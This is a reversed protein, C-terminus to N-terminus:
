KGIAICYIAEEDGPEVDLLTNLRDDYFGGIACSGVHLPSSLLSINQGIHGAEIHMYRYAREGYKQLGRKICATLVIICAANALWSQAFYEEVKLEPMLVLEELLHSRVYYHYVGRPLPTHLSIVYTELPYLGGASPYYRSENGPVQNRKIGTGYYLIASMLPLSIEHGTFDRFSSRKQLASRLGFKQISVPRPLPISTLRPYGKYHKKEFDLLHKATEHVRTDDLSSSQHFQKWKLDRKHLVSRIDPSQM